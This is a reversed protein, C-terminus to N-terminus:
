SDHVGGGKCINRIHVDQKSEIESVEDKLKLAIHVVRDDTDDPKAEFSEVDEALLHKKNEVIATDGNTVNKFYLKDGILYYYYWEKKLLKKITTGSIPDPVNDQEDKEVVLLKKEDKWTVHNGEMVCGSIHNVVDKAENQLAVRAQTQNTSRMSYALLAILSTLVIATIAIAILMEVLSFGDSTKKSSNNM